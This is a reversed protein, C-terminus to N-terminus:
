IPPFPYKDSESLRKKKMQSLFATAGVKCPSNFSVSYVIALMDYTAVGEKGDRSTWYSLSPERISDKHTEGM